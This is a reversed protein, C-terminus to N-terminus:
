INMPFVLISASAGISLGASTFYSAWQFSGSAPYSQLSSSFPVVSSSITPHCWQSSPCSNSCAGPTQSPWPLRAHQLGHPQLSNSMVSQSFKYTSLIYCHIFCILNRVKMSSVNLHYWFFFIMCFIYHYTNYLSLSASYSKRPSVTTSFRVATCSVICSVQTQDM